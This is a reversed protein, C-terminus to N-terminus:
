FIEFVFLAWVGMTTVTVALFNVGNNTLYGWRQLTAGLFSDLHCSIVGAFFPLLFYFPTLPFQLFPKSFCGILFFGAFALLISGVMSSVEGLGSIGGDVGAKVKKFTTILYVKNSLVGLESAFTDASVACIATLYLMPAVSEELYLASFAIVSPILGNALVNELGRMGKRGEALGRQEKDRYKTITVFHNMSLFLILIVLWIFDATIAIVAGIISAAFAGKKDLIRQSVALLGMLICVLVILTMVFPNAQSVVEALNEPRTM